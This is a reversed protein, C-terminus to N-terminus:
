GQTDAVAADHSDDDDQNGFVAAVSLTQHSSPSILFPIFGDEAAERAITTSSVQVIRPSPPRPSSQPPPSVIPVAPLARVSPDPARCSKLCLSSSFTISNRSWDIHPNHRRLWPIGLVILYRDLTTLHLSLREQHTDIHLPVESSHTVPGSSIPRGDIVNLPLPESLKFSPLHHNQAFSIDLFSATAGSDIM